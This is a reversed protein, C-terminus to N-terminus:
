ARLRAALDLRPVRQDFGGAAVGADGQRHCRRHHTIAHHQHHRLMEADFPPLRHACETRFDHQRWFLAAHLLRAIHRLAHAVLPAADDQILKGIRIIRQRMVCSSCGLDPAISIPLDAMKDAAHTGGTGDHTAASIELFFIGRDLDDAHLRLLAGLNGADALPRM